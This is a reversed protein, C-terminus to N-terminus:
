EDGEIGPVALRASISGIALVLANVAAGGEIQLPNDKDGGVSLKDGYIKPLVKSLMWKRTDVRLRQRQPDDSKEDAIALIEDAMRQYGIERAHAYRPGFGDRDERAWKRVAAEDPMDDGQCLKLLTEGAELRDLIRAALEPTYEVSPKVIVRQKAARRRHSAKMDESM